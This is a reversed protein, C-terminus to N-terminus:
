LLIIKLATKSKGFRWYVGRLYFNHLGDGRVSVGQRGMVLAVAGLTGVEGVFVVGGLNGGVEPSDRIELCGGVVDAGKDCVVEFHDVFGWGGYGEAAAVGRAVTAGSVRVPQKDYRSLDVLGPPLHDEPLLATKEIAPPLKLTYLSGHRPPHLQHM